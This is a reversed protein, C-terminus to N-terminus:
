NRAADDIRRTILVIPILGALVIAVAPMAAREWEGEATLQYVRVALTDWGFPRTMLTIPLEKMIDVFTLAAGTLLGGRLIPVHVRKLMEWGTVGLSRSAEDLNRTVRLLSSKVPNHAVALFRVLYAFLMALVSGQLMIRPADDGLIGDMVSQISNNLAALPVIIGVALLTGPLAYGLTAIRAATTTLLSRRQRVGFSLLLAAATIILAGSAALTLTRAVFGVYRSDLDTGFHDLSWWILQATPLVFAVTFVCACFITALWAVYGRLSVRQGARGSADESTYAARARLRQEVVVAAFVLLILISSLQLAADVSFLSYWSKYIETTFTDYNFVAVTGFDSLTEMLALMVGGAIWPRAMPLAVRFFGKIPNLGHVQAIELARKGQTSFANRAILYVYPYLTLTLVVSVGLASRIEPFYAGNGFWGRWVTQVPGSYELLGLFVFAMVYGPIALPLLLAWSLWKRGPFECVAILWGLATGILTTGIGVFLVLVATNRTVDLLTYRALHRWVELDPEVFSGLVAAVPIVTPLAILIVLLGWGRYPVAPSVTKAHHKTEAQM